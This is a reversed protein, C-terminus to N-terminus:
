KAAEFHRPIDQVNWCWHCNRTPTTATRAAHQYCLVKTWYTAVVMCRRKRALCPGQHERPMTRCDWSRRCQEERRYYPGGNYRNLICREPIKDLHQKDRCWVAHRAIEEAALRFSEEPDARVQQCRAKVWRPHGAFNQQTIGCDQACYTSGPQTCRYDPRIAGTFNSEIRALAVLMYPDVDHQQAAKLIADAYRQVKDDSVPIGKTKLADIARVVNARVPLVSPAVLSPVFARVGTVVVPDAQQQLALLVLILISM